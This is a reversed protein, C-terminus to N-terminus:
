GGVAAVFQNIHYLENETGQLRLGNLLSQTAQDPTPAPDPEVPPDVPDTGTDKSSSSSGAM